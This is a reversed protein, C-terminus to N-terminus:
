KLNQYNMIIFGEKLAQIMDPYTLYGLEGIHTSSGYIAPLEHPKLARFGRVYDRYKVGQLVKVGVSHSYTMPIFSLDPIQIEGYKHVRHDARFWGEQEPENGYAKNLKLLLADVENILEGQTQM